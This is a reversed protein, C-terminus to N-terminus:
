LSEESGKSQIRIFEQSDTDRLFKCLSLDLEYALLDGDDDLIGDDLQVTIVVVSPRGQKNFVNIRAVADISHHHLVGTAQLM